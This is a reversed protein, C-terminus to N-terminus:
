EDSAASSVASQYNKAAKTELRQVTRELRGTMDIKRGVKQCVSYGKLVTIGTMLVGVRWALKAAKM